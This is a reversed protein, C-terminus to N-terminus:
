ALAAARALVEDSPRGDFLEAVLRAMEAPFPDQYVARGIAMGSAGGEVADAVESLLADRERRPGGLFLVPV